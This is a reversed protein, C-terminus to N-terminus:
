REENPQHALLFVICLQKLPHYSSGLIYITVIQGGSFFKKYARNIRRPPFKIIISRSFTTSSLGSSTTTFYTAAFSVYVLLLAMWKLCEEYDDDDM